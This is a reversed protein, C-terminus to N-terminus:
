GVAHTVEEAVCRRRRRWKQWQRTAASRGPASVPWVRRQAFRSRGEKASAGRAAHERHHARRWRCLARCAQCQLHPKGGAGTGTVRALRWASRPASNSASASAAARPACHHRRHGAGEHQHRGRRRSGGPGSRRRTRHRSALAHVAAKAESAASWPQPTTCPSARSALRTSTSWFGAHISRFPPM